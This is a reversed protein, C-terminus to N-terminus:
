RKGSKNRRKMKDGTVRREKQGSRQKIAKVHAARAAAKTEYRIKRVPPKSKTASNKRTSTRIGASSAGNRTSTAKDKGKLVSDSAIQGKDEESEDMPGHMDALPDFDEIVAVTALQEDDSYEDEHENTTTKASSDAIALAAGGYAKEVEEFNTRAREKLEKRMQRRQELHETKEREIAKAKAIKKKELNRKRFGTLYDRRAEEDFVVEKVQAQRARKKHAWAASQRTLLAANSPAM